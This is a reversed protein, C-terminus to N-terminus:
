RPAVVVDFSIVVGAIVQPKASVVSYKEESAWRTITDGSNISFEEPPFSVTMTGKHDSFVGRKTEGAVHFDEGFIKVSDEFARRFSNGVENSM